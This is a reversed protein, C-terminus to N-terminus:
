VITTRHSHGTQLNGIEILTQWSERDKADEQKLGWQKMDDEITDM